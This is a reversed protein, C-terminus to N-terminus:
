RIGYRSSISSDSLVRRFLYVSFCVSNSWADLVVVIECRLSVCHLGELFLSM